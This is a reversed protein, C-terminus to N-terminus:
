FGTHSLHLIALCFFHFIFTKPQPIYSLQYPAQMADMFGETQDVPSCLDLCNRAHLGEPPLIILLHLVEEAIFYAQFWALTCTVRDWSSFHNHKLCLCFVLLWIGLVKPNKPSCWLHPLYSPSLLPCKPSAPWSTWASVGYQCRIETKTCTHVCAPM